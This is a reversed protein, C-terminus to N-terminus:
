KFVAFILTPSFSCSSCFIKKRRTSDKSDNFIFFYFVDVDRVGVGQVVKCRGGAWVEDGCSAQNLVPVKVCYTFSAIKPRVVLM